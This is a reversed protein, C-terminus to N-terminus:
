TGEFRAWPVWRLAGGDSIDGGIELQGWSARHTGLKSSGRRPDQNVRPEDCGIALRGCAFIDEYSM